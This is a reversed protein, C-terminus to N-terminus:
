SVIVHRLELLRVGEREGGQQGCECKVESRVRYSRRRQIRGSYM